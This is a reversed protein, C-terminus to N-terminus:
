ATAPTRTQKRLARWGSPACARVAEDPALTALYSPAEYPSAASYGDRSEDLIPRTMSWGITFLTYGASKLYTAADSASGAHDEFVIHRIRHEKLARAAGQLLPFEYGEVDVKMVGVHRDGLVADVTEVPVNV